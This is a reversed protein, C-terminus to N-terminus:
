RRDLDEWFINERKRCLTGALVNEEGDRQPGSVCSDLDVVEVDSVVGRMRSWM